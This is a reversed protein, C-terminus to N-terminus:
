RTMRREVTKGSLVETVAVRWEGHPDNLAFPVAYRVTEGSRVTLNKAYCAAETGDPRRVEVHAVTDVNGACRVSMTRGEVAADAVGTEEPVQVFALAVSRGAPVAVRDTSGYAKGDVLEYVFGKRPFRITLAGRKRHPLIGWFLNGKRDVKTSIGLDRVTKGDEAITLRDAGLGAKALAAELADLDDEGFTEFLTHRDKRFAKAFPSSPRARCNAKLRGPMGDAVLTGGARVFAAIAVIEADDMAAADPLVLAKYGKRAAVGEALQEPSVYDYSCGLRPLAERFNAASAEHEKRRNEIFAARFSAQSYYIAVDAKVSLNELIHRGIGRKMRLIHPTTDALGKSPTLDPLWQSSSQFGMIGRLSNFLPGWVRNIGADGARAYGWDWPMFRGDPSFSRHIPHQGGYGYSLACDLVQLIKWWDMGGYASPIQTGSLAFRLDPDVEKLRRCSYAISNTLRSDMFELHDSWGAVHGGNADWVEQRTYPVVEDWSRFASEYEENLKELTGYKAKAFTRFEALCSPSFCFDIPKGSYGTISQEDGFWVFRLGYKPLTERQRAIAEDRSAFFKPDSLCPGRVLTMKDGTKGYAAPEKTRGLGANGLLTPHFNYRMPLDIQARTPNAIVTDVGSAHFARALDPWLYRRTSANAWTGVEFDDWVLKERSPRVRLEAKRRAVVAGQADVLEAIVDYCRASLENEIKFTWEIPSATEKLPSAAEQGSKLLKSEVERGYSDVVRMRLWIGSGQDGIGSGKVEVKVEDGELHYTRDLKLDAIEAPPPVAFEWAGWNLVAGNHRVSVEFALRGAFPPIKLGDLTVGNAGKKLTVRRIGKALTEGFPSVARWEWATEGAADATVQFAAKDAAVEASAFALPQERGAVRLVAKAILSYYREFPAIRDPYFDSLDPTLGASPGKGVDAAARYPIVIVRGKGCTREMVYPLKGATAHVTWDKTDFAYVYEEGLLGFPVDAFATGKAEAESRRGGKKLKLGLEPVSHDEGLLVLGAGQEVREVIAKRLPDTLVDFPVGGLVIVDSPWEISKRVAREADGTGILGFYDGNNYQPNSIGRKKGVSISIGATRYDCDLREALRGVELQNGLGTVFSVKVRGGALPKAWATAGSPPFNTYCNLDPEKIASVRQKEPSALRWEGGDPRAELRCAERGGRVLAVTKAATRFERLDGPKAFTLDFKRGDATAVVKGSRASVVRCVGDRLEGVLGDGAGSVTKLGKFPIIETAVDYHAGAEVGFPIMRWEMTPVPNFWSYFAKIDRYPMTIAVGIGEDTAAAMWGRSPGSLLVQKGRSKPKEVRIGDELPYFCTVDRGFVGLTTHILPAYNVLAMAEPMNEFSYDVKLATSDDSSSMRRHVKLFNIKGGSANGVAEAVIEGKPGTRYTMEYPTNRLLKRSQPVNWCLETFCGEGSPDTLEAGVAKSWISMASGGQARFCIRFQANELVKYEGKKWDYDVTDAPAAAAFLGAMAVFLGSM